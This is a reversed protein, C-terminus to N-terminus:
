RDLVTCRDLGSRKNLECQAVSLYFGHFWWPLMPAQWNLLAQGRRRYARMVQGEIRLSDPYAAWRFKRLTVALGTFRGSARHQQERAKPHLTSGVYVCKGGADFLGYVCCLQGLMREQNGPIDGYWRLRRAAEMRGRRREREVASYNKRKGRGLRGLAQAHENM